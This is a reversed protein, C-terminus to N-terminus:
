LPAVKHSAPLRIKGQLGEPEYHLEVEGDLERALGQEVLRTGFGRRAPPKVPPGGHESWFLEVAPPDVTRDVTWCVELRGEATSLAGYKAANTALEHFAM